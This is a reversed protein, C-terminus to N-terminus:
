DQILEFKDIVSSMGFDNNIFFHNKFDILIMSGYFYIVDGESLCSANEINYRIHILVAPKDRLLNDKRFPHSTVKANSYIHQMSGKHGVEEETLKITHKVKHAPISYHAQHFFSHRGAFKQLRSIVNGINQESLIIKDM